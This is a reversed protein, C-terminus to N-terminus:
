KVGKGEVGQEDPALFLLLGCNQPLLEDTRLLGWSQWRHDPGARRAAVAWASGQLSPHRTLCRRDIALEFWWADDGHRVAVHWRPNYQHWRDCRDFTQGDAAIGLQFATAYDRDVDIRLEVHDEAEIPADYQRLRALQPPSQQPYWPCRGAVYVYQEDFAWWVDSPTGQADLRHLRMAPEQQWISEDLHGDLLPPQSAPVAVAHWRPPPGQRTLWWKEQAAIQPWGALQSADLLRQLRAVAQAPRQSQREKSAAQAIVPPWSALEPFRQSVAALTSFWATAEQPFQAAAVGGSPQYVAAEVASSDRRGSTAAAVVIPDSEFPSAALPDVTMRDPAGQTGRVTQPGRDTQYPPSDANAPVEQDMAMAQWVRFEESGATRLLEVAADLAIDPQLRYHAVIELVLQRRASWRSPSLDDALRRLMCGVERAPTSQVVFRLSEGWASLPADSDSLKAIMAQRHPRGMILQYNGLEMPALERRHSAEMGIGGALSQVAAINRTQSWRTWMVPEGHAVAEPPMELLVDWVSLGLSRLFRQPNTQYREVGPPPQGTARSYCVIKQPLHRQLGLEELVTLIAGAEETAAAATDGASTTALSAEWVGVADAPVVVIAPRWTACLVVAEMAGRIGGNETDPFFWRNPPGTLTIGVRSVLSRYRHSSPPLFDAAAVPTTDGGLSLVTRLRDDWAAAVIAAWPAESARRAICLQGARRGGGSQPYWTRGGDRTAYIGGFAGVAWGRETDTFELDYLPLAIGTRYIGWSRGGDSSHLLLGGPEGAVWVHAGRSLAVTWTVWQRASDSLPIAVEHWQHGDVSSLVRGHGGVAIWGHGTAALSRIDLLAGDRHPSGTTLNGVATLSDVMASGGRGLRDCAMLERQSRWAAATAHGLPIRVPGWTIGGDRSIFVSAQHVASYDGWALCQAGHHAIGLLRPMDHPISQWTKGADHSILVVGRSAGSRAGITGGVAIARTESVFVVGNLDAVTASDVSEWRHGGDESRWVTGADGVACLVDAGAAAIARLAADRRCAKALSEAVVDGADNHGDAFSAHDLSSTGTM